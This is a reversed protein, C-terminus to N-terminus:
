SPVPSIRSFPFSGKLLIQVTDWLNGECSVVAECMAGGSLIAGAVVLAKVAPLVRCYCCETFFISSQKIDVIM